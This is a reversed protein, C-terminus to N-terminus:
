DRWTIEQFLFKTELEQTVKTESYFVDNIYLGDVSFFDVNDLAMAMRNIKGLSLADNPAIANVYEKVKGAIEDKLYETDGTETELHCVLVVPLPTPVIYETYSEPSIVNKIRAKAEALAKAITDDSYETPIVYVVGTGAGHIGPYYEANSAYKLNLLSDNVATLNAGAKLYTWNMIRYLYDTDSEGTERPVNVFTGMKDLNKGSLNTYIHPNKAREIEDYADEMSRAVAETFFGIASGDRYDKGTFGLFDSKISTSIDGANRSM